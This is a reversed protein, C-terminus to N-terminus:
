SARRRCRQFLDPSTEASGPDTIPKVNRGLQQETGGEPLSGAAAWSMPSPRGFGRPPRDWHEAVRRTFLREEHHLPFKKHKVQHGDSRTRDSPVVRKAGAKSINVHILSDDGGERHTLEWLTEESLSAGSGFCTVEWGWRRGGAGGAGGRGAGRWRPVGPHLWSCRQASPPISVAARWLGLTDGTVHAGCRQGVGVRGYWKGAM